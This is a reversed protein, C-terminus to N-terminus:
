RQYIPRSFRDGCSGAHSALSGEFAIPVDADDSMDIGPLGRGGLPHEEVGTPGM